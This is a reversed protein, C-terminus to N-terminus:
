NPSRVGDDHFFMGGDSCSKVKSNDLFLFHPIVASGNSDSDM